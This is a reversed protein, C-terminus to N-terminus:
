QLNANALMHKIEDNYKHLIFTDSYRNKISWQDTASIIDETQMEQLNKHKIGMNYFMISSPFNQRTDGGGIIQNDSLRQM